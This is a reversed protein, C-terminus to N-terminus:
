KVIKSLDIGEAKALDRLPNYKADEVPIFGGVNASKLVAPDKISFFAQSILTKDGDTLEKRYAIPSQPINFSKAVINVDGDKIKGSDIQSQYIDSAVAGADTKGAIVGLLSVDHSGAFIGQVDKDPDLGAQILTYRPVLNGSTSAPDVFSFSHGKLDALTKIGTKPTTIILSNYFDRGRVDLQLAFAEANYKDHALLYSFPGFWAVDIKNSNLAEIVATYSTGVTIEVPVGLQQSLADALPKANDFAKTANEAPITGFRLTKLSLKTTSSAAGVTGAVVIGATRTAAATTASTGSTAATTAAASTMAATSAMAATTAPAASTMAATTAPAASTMAATTASTAASSTTATSDGCAALLSAVMLTLVMLGLTKALRVPSFLKLM